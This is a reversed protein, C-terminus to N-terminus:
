QAARNRGAISVTRQVAAREPRYAPGVALKEAKMWIDPHPRFSDRL